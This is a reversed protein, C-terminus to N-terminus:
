EEEQGVFFEDDASWGNKIGGSRLDNRKYVASGSYAYTIKRSRIYTSDTPLRIIYLQGRTTRVGGWGGSLQWVLALRASHVSIVQGQDMEEM